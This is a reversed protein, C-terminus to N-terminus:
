GVSATFEHVVRDIQDDDRAQHELITFRGPRTNPAAAVVRCFQDHDLGLDAPVRPLGHVRFCQDIAAFRPDERLFSAFLTGVAVVEGHLRDSPFLANIAHAIEHEAGSCPRSSGAITMAIGSLVLADALVATFATSATPENSRLVAEGATRAMAVALGDVSEGNVQQALEWDAVASLNSVADGIGSQLHRLPSSAVYDLDVIVAIPAHVGFSASRGHDSLVSVPSALGDHTLTTAVSVMPLGRRGAAYKAVDLTGGGGIGLVADVATTALEDAIQQASELTAGASLLRPADPLIDDITAALPDGLGSGLVVAVKGTTAIRADSLIAALDGIAGSRIDVILPTPISRALLPM